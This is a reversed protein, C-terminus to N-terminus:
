PVLSATRFHSIKQLPLSPLSKLWLFVNLIKLILIQAQRLSQPFYGNESLRMHSSKALEDVNLL